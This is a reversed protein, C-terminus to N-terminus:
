LYLKVKVRFHQINYYRKRVFDTKPVDKV